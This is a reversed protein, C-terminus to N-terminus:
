YTASNKGPSPVPTNKLHKAPVFANELREMFSSSSIHCRDMFTSSEHFRTTDRYWALSSFMFHARTSRYSDSRAYNLLIMFFFYDKKKEDDRTVLCQYKV